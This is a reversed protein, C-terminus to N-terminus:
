APSSILELNIGRGDHNRFSEYRINYENLLVGAGINLKKTLANPPIDSGIQEGLETATGSWKPNESNIFDAVKEIIPDTPAEHFETESKEFDWVLTDENKRLFIRQESQDRGVIDLIAQTDTRNEKHLIFAGDAGGLIGTTGSIMEFVDSAQQKRTHHVLIICVGKSDAFKKIEGIIEYDGSYSYKDTTAERIKQLTDIIVLRTDQHKEIFDDLQETLGDGLKKSNIALHLKDTTEVGFMRSLRSQLRKHDDELALYLVTGSKVEHGWLEKGTSIHYAIQAVLFSKGVKPAGALVYTGPYLIGDIIPPKGCYVNEFLEGMSITSLRNPNLNFDNLFNRSLQALREKKSLTNSKEENATISSEASKVSQEAGAGVPSVPATKKEEM